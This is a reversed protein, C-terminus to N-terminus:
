YSSCLTGSPVLFLLEFYAFLRSKHPNKLSSCPTRNEVYGDGFPELKKCDGLEDVYLYSFVLLEEETMETYQKETYKPYYSLIMAGSPALAREIEANIKAGKRWSGSIETEEGETDVMLVKKGEGVLVCSGDSNLYAESYGSQTIEIEQEAYRGAASEEIKETKEANQGCGTCGLLIGLVMVMWVFVNGNGSRVKGARSRM